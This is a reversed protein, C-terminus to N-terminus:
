VRQGGVERHAFMLAGVTLFLLTFLLFYVSGFVVYEWPIVKGAALADAMWFLQWNPIACHIVAVALNTEALESFLYDSMLGLVFIVACALMNQLLGLRTSLASALVGLTCVGFTVLILAPVVKWHYAPNLGAAPLFEYVILGLPLLVLMALIAAMSFSSRRVFNVVGGVLCSLALICFFLIFGPMHFNFQDSAVRLIMLGGAGTLGCFVALSVLLGLTKGLMFGFRTVPKSLLLMATGRNIEQTVSHAAILVALVWGFSLMTAMATDTVLKEQERFVFLTFAPLLGILVMAALLILLFIPQRLNERFTNRAIHFVATLM